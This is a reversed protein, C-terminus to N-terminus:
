TSQFFSTLRKQEAEEKAFHSIKVGVRRIELESEGLFKEFLERVAQRLAEVDNTATELTKSRSRVSLDTMIAIIGVQKFSVNRQVLDKHIDEILQDTKELVVALDRTNEKLTSIRSISEAEGTEQVPENDVGKAANHFYVGSTKGFVEVLKQVDYRALDGITKIGLANMKKSIKKGVGLVRDVALPSLFATVAEPRVVTLGDPKEANSAIKAVLKNPGVGVSFTVGVQRKADAKMQEALRKAEEFSGHAKQTVDLYAEDISVQEFADAYGKLIQMIKSSIQEYYEYDVPLFVADVNQLRRKALYLPIGSKVGYKRAVYNATSVAGSDETRGSYVGIVVPKDKLAPNRLEECQAFFYDLDALMVIRTPLPVRNVETWSGAAV